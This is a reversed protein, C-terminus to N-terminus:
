FEARRRNLNVIVAIIIPAGILATVTNLPLHNSTLRVVLDSFITLFSGGIFVAPLILAHNTSKLTYRILQPVAIGIFGIPGCYVTVIAALVGTIIIIGIRTRKINIGLSEAYDVGTVLANLPKILAFALVLILAIVSFFILIELNSLGEFSGLAWIIYARTETENAYLYLINILASTFYGFMLGTVILTISNQIFRSLLLLIILVVLAGSIGAFVIGLGGVLSTMSAGGLVVLAVGFSAGSTIGLVGPGALPNRFFVQLVLGSVGLAGGALIAVISRNLRSEVIFSWSPNDVRGGGLILLVDKSAIKVDGVILNLWFFLVILGIISIVKLIDTNKKM